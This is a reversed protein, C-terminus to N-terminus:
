QFHGPKDRGSGLGERGLLMHELWNMLRAGGLIPPDERKQEHYYLWSIGERENGRTQVGLKFTMESLFGEWM